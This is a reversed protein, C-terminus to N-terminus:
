VSSDSFSLNTNEILRTAEQNLYYLLSTSRSTEWQPDGLENRIKEPNSVNFLDLM